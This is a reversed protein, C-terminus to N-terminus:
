KSIRDLTIKVVKGEEAQQKSKMLRKTMPTNSIKDPLKFFLAVVFGIILSFAITLLIVCGFVTIFPLYSDANNVGLILPHNM